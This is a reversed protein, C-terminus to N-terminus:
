FMKGAASLLLTASFHEEVKQMFLDYRIHGWIMTENNREGFKKSGGRDINLKQSSHILTIRSLLYM